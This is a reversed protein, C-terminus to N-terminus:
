YRRIWQVPGPLETPIAVRYPSSPGPISNRNLRYKGCIGTASREVALTWPQDSERTAPEFGAPPSPHKHETNYTSIFPLICFASWSLFCLRIFYLCLVLFYLVIGTSTLNEVDMFVWGGVYHTGCKKKGPGLRGTCPALWGGGHVCIKRFSVSDGTDLKGVNRFFTVFFETIRLFVATSVRVDRVNVHAQLWMCTHFLCLVNVTFPLSEPSASSSPSTVPPHHRRHRRANSSFNNKSRCSVNEASPLWM